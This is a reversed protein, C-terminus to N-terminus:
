EAESTAKLLDWLCPSLVELLRHYFSDLIFVKPTPSGAASGQSRALPQDVIGGERGGEQERERGEERGERGLRM